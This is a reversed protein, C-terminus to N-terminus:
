EQPTMQKSVARAIRVVESFHVRRELPYKQQNWCRLVYVNPDAPDLFVRKFTTTGDSFALYYSKGSLIGEREYSDYSFLVIEGDNWVPEQCDGDVPITFARDDLTDAPRRADPDEDELKEVRKSAAVGSSFHPVMRAPRKLNSRLSSPLDRAAPVTVSGVATRVGLRRVLETPSLNLAKSLAVVADGETDRNSFSRGNDDASGTRSGLGAKPDEAMFAAILDAWSAFELANSLSRLSDVEAIPNHPDGHRIRHLTARSLYADSLIRKWRKGVAIRRLHLFESFGERHMSM